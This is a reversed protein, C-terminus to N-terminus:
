KEELEKIRNELSKVYEVLARGDDEYIKIFNHVSWTNNKINGVVSRGIELNTVVGMEREKREKRMHYWARNKALSEEHNDWYKKKRKELIKERNDWYQQRRKARLEDGNKAYYENWYNSRDKRPRGRKHSRVVVPHIRPRGRKRKEKEVKPADEIDHKCVPLKCNLCDKDCRMGGM